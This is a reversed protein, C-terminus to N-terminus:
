IEGDRERDRVRERFWADIWIHNEATLIKVWYKESSWLYLYVNNFSFAWLKMKKDLIPDFNKEEFISFSFKDFNEDRRRKKLRFSPLDTVQASKGRSKDPLFKRRFTKEHGLSSFSSALNFEFKWKWNWNEESLRKNDDLLLHCDRLKVGNQVRALNSRKKVQRKM